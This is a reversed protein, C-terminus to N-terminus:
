LNADKDEELSVRVFPQSIEFSSITGIVVGSVMIKIEKLQHISNKSTIVVLDDM